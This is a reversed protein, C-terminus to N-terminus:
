SVKILDFEFEQATDTIGLCDVTPPVTNDFQGWVGINGYRFDPWDNNDSVNAAPCGPRWASGVFFIRAAVLNAGQARFGVVQYTGSPLTQSFTLVTNVWTATVLTAAGTARVTYIKGLVPKVAGDALIILARNMVSAGNQIYVDLPENTVLQLPTQWMRQCRPLTGFVLGNVIPNIDFNLLARLSPSQIQARLTAASSNILAAAMIIQNLSSPVYFDNGSVRLTPDPIPTIAALAANSATSEYGILHMSM